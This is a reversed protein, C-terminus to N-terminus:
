DSRPDTIARPVAQGSQSPDPRHQRVVHLGLFELLTAPVAFYRRQSDNPLLVSARWVPRAGDSEYWVRLLYVEHETSAPPHTDDNM